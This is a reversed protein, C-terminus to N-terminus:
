KKLEFLYITFEETTDTYRQYILNFKESFVLEYDTRLTGNDKYVAEIGDGNETRAVVYDVEHNNIYENQSDINDPYSEYEINQEEFHKKLDRYDDILYVGLDLTGYSLIKGDPNHSNIYDSIKKNYTKEIDRQTFKSNCHFFAAYAASSIVIAATLVWAIIKVPKKGSLKNTFSLILIFVFIIFLMLPLMYYTFTRGGFFMFFICSAYAFPVAIRSLFKGDTFRKFIMPIVAGLVTAGVIVPHQLFRTKFMSFIDLIKTIIGNQNGYSSSNIVFYVDIFDKLAGNLYFYVVWPIFAIIVGAFFAAVSTFVKGIKKQSFLTYLMLIGMWAFWFGILTFKIMAVCGVFFGALMYDNWKLENEAPNTFFRLLYYLSVTMFPLVFEEASDGVYFCFSSVIFLFSAASVIVSQWKDTYLRSIKYIFTATIATGISEFIYVGTFSTKSILYALAHILYLLPGKQEFVDKYPIIGNAMAKGMTFFSNADNWPNVAYRFSSATCFYMMIFSFITFFLSAFFLEKKNLKKISKDM